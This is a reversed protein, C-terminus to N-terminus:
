CRAVHRTAPAGPQQVEAPGLTPTALVKWPTAADLRELLTASRPGGLGEVAGDVFGISGNKRVGMITGGHPGAIMGIPGRKSLIM